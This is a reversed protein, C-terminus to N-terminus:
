VQNSEILSWTAKRAKSEILHKAGSEAEGNWHNFKKYITNVVNIQDLYTDPGSEENPFCESIEHSANSGLNSFLIPNM